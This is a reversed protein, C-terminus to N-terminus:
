PKIIKEASSLHEYISLMNTIQGLALESKIGFYDVCTGCLIIKVGKKELELLKESTTTGRLALQVGSNYCIIEKPLADSGLLANLFALILVEGLEDSGQGMKNSSLQITAGRSSPTSTISPTSNTTQPTIHSNPTVEISLSTYGEMQVETCGYGHDHIFDKLNGCSTPNDTLVTFHTEAPNAAMGQKLMILPLPCLKGRTDIEVSM